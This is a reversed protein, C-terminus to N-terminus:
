KGYEDLITGVLKEIIDEMTIIGVVKENEDRVILIVQNNVQMLKFANTIRDKKQIFIVPRICKNLEIEINKTNELELIIDKINLIGVVNDKNNEFVPIRTYKYKKINELIQKTDSKINLFDVEEKIKMIDKVFIDNYKLARFVIEKEVKDIIGQEKGETIIMKIEKETLMDKPNEKVGLIKCIIHTSFNILKEFPYNLISLISLVNILAFATKEPNNRAIRKPILLGFVLLFYSLIITIIIISLIKAIVENLTLEMFFIALKNIFVEAAIVSAFLECMTIGVETIGFLKHNKELMKYIREARKNKKSMQHIKAKNIYTFATESASFISKIFVIIFILIIGKM